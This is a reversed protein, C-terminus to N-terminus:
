KQKKSEGTQYDIEIGDEVNYVFVHFKIGEGHDEVSLAEMVVGKALLNNGEYVPTVRYLVHNETKKVYKAVESEFDTMVKQNMSHTCTMLNEKNASEGTLQFAILHCRNYLSVGDYQVSHWGTPHISSISEREGTPMIDIGINAFAVGVRGLSDLGSYIEFSNPILYEEEFHPENNDLVVYPEGQYDPIKTSDYTVEPQELAGNVQTRMDENFYYYLYVGLIVFFLVMGLNINSAQKRKNRRRRKAM